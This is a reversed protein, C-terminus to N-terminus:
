LGEAIEVIMEVKTAHDPWFSFLFGDILLHCIERGEDDVLKLDPVLFPDRVLEQTRDLLRRQRRRPLTTLFEVAADSFVPRYPM